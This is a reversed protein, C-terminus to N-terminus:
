NFHYGMHSIGLAKIQKVLKTYIKKLKRALPMSNQEGTGHIDREKNSPIFFLAITIFSSYINVLIGLDWLLKYKRM